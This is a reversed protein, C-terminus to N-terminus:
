CLGSRVPARIPRIACAGPYTPIARGGSPVPYATASRRGAATVGAPVTIACRLHRALQRISARLVCRTLTGCRVVSRDIASFIYSDCDVARITTVSGATSIMEPM